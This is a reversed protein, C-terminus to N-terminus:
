SRAARTYTTADDSDTGSLITLTDAENRLVFAGTTRNLTVKNTNAAHLLAIVKTLTLGSITEDGNVAESITEGLVATAIAAATPDNLAAILGPITTATDVLIAAVDSGHIAGSLDLTPSGTRNDTVSEYIGNIDVTGNAGNLVIAGLTGELMITDGSEVGSVTIAGSWKRFEATIAQGATKTFVPPSLGATGAQCNFIHYDGALTFTTTGSFTSEYFHAKQVSATGVECDHFEMETAATGIGTVACNFFHCEDVDQGGLALVWGHGEFLQGNHTATLTVTSGPDIHFTHLNTETAITNAATMTSVPNRSVGDIGPETNTNSVTTDVWIAGNEYGEVGQALSLYIQEVAFTASTLTFAGDTFRIRVKGEDAGNGVMDIFMPFSDTEYTTSNKGLITGIQVWGASIWDYGHVEIDDNNSTLYTHLVVDTPVGAGILFEYYLDLAGATSTHTHPSGDFAATSAFTGVTQTGTTLTYSSAPKNTAASVNAINGIQEQTAPAADNTYGTGDFMAELNDAATADGSVAIANAVIGVTGSIISDYAAADLVSFSHWVPLHTAPTQCKIRLIGATGTDTADLVCSYWGEAQHVTATADNRTAWAGGNKSVEVTVGGLGTEETVGDTVDLFPGINVTVSTSEKLFGDSM